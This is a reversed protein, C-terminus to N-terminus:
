AVNAATRIAPYDFQRHASAVVREMEYREFPLAMVDYGGINLVEAWLSEDATRSTVILLPPKTLRRLDNLVGRWSWNPVDSKAIVVHVPNSELCLMARKRDRAEFLRWGLQKFVDRVLLRDDQYDGVLLASLKIEAKM